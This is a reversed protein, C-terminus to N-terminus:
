KLTLKCVLTRRTIQSSLAFKPSNSKNTKNREKLLSNQLNSTRLWKNIIRWKSCTTKVKNNPTPELELRRRTKNVKLFCSVEQREQQPQSYDQEQLLPRLKHVVLYAVKLNLRHNNNDLYDQQQSSRQSHKVVLCDLKDRLQSHNLLAESSGEELQLKLKLQLELFVAVLQLQQNHHLLLEVLCDARLRQLNLEALYVEQYQRKSCQRLEASFDGM